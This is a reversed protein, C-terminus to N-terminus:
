PMEYAWNAPSCIFFFNGLSVTETFGELLM